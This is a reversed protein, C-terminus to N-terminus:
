VRTLAKGVFLLVMAGGVAILFSSINFGTVDVGLLLSGLFSGVLAGVVGLVISGLLGGRSPRPDLANAISGVILGFLIWGIFGM